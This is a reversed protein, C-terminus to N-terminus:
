MLIPLGYSLELWITNRDKSLDSGDSLFEVNNQYRYRLSLDLHETIQYFLRPELWFYREDNIDADQNFLKYSFVLRGNIGFGFRESLLRSYGLYFNDVNVDDGEATTRLDHFYRFITSSVTGRFNLDIRAKAGFNDDEDIGNSSKVNSYLAGIGAFSSTISSWDRDWGFDFSFSDVENLDNSRYYYSPGVSLTDRENKLRHSFYLNARHNYYDSLADGEYSVNQYRYGVTIKNIRTIDYGVKGGAEFFDRELRDRARGTEQLYSNLTTDRFFKFNASTTLREKIRHDGSLRYYQNTRDLDSEDLYSLIDFDASLSLSSLLTQYDVEVGPSVTAISTSVTDDTTFLVNDDYAGGVGLKPTITIEAADAVVSLFHISLILFIPLFYYQPVKGLVKKYDRCDFTSFCGGCFFWGMFQRGNTCKKPKM